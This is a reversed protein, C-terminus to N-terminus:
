AERARCLPHLMPGPVQTHIKMGALGCAQLQGEKRRSGCARLTYLSGHSDFHGVSDSGRIHNGQLTM